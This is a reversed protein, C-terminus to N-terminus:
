IKDMIEGLTRGPNLVGARVARVAGAHFARIDAESYVSLRHIYNFKYCGSRVDYLTVTYLPMVYYGMNFGLFEYGRGGFSDEALPLYSFMMSMSTQWPLYGFMKQESARLATFPVDQHRFLFGQTVAMRRLAEEFTIEEPLIERWPMPSAMTGGARKEKVTRRRPCLVWFVTDNVRGNLKSIYLRLGLQIVWEASLQREKVFAAIEASVDPPLVTHTFRTRDTFPLFETFRSPKGIRKTGAPKVSCCTPPRDMRFYEELAATEGAEYAARGPDSLEAEIMTEYSHLPKPMPAGAALADYVAFLDKFFLFVAMADMAVHSVNLYVGARGAPATFFAVRFTEGGFVNLRKGSIGDLVRRQEEESSFRYVPIDELRFAPLFRQRLGEPTKELRLRLCDNRAIEENVARALIEFDPPTDLVVACPIQTAQTHLAYKWMFQVMKQSGILPYTKEASPM